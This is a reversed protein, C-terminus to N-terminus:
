MSRAANRVARGLTGAIAAQSQKFSDFDRVGHFHVVVGTRNAPLEPEIYGATAPRFLEPGREGVIYYRSPDVPGGNARMGGFLEAIGRAVSLLAGGKGKGGGEGGLLYDVLTSFARNTIIRLLDRELAKLVDSFSRAGTIADVFASGLAKELQFALEYVGNMQDRVAQVARNYIEQSIVGAELLDKYRAITENLIQQATSYRETLLAGELRMRQMEAERALLEARAAATEQIITREQETLEASARIGARHDARAKTEAEILARAAARAANGQDAVAAEAQAIRLADQLSQIYNELQSQRESGATRRPGLAGRTPTEPFIQPSQQAEATLRELESRAEALQDRLRSVASNWRDLILPSQTNPKREELERLRSELENVRAQADQLATRTNRLIASGGLVGAGGGLAAGAIGGVAAGVPGFIGGLRAGAFGGAAAGGLVTGGAAGGLLLNRLSPNDLIRVLGALGEQLLKIGELLTPALGAAFRQQLVAVQINLAAIADSTADAKNSLEESLVAGFQRAQREFENLGQAGQTLLPLLSQGGRGFLDVAAAARAAPEPIRKLADAIEPLVEEATRLRGSSDRILIGLNEFAKAAEKSGENAEGLKRSLREIGNRLQEQSIGTQAAAFQLIQLGEVSLGMQEALEGLGGAAELARMTMSVLGGLSLAAALPAFAARLGNAAAELSSFAQSTRLANRQIGALGREFQQEANQLSRRATTLARQWAATELELDARLAGIRTSGSM